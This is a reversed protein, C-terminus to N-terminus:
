DTKTDLQGFVARCKRDENGRKLWERMVGVEMRVNEYVGSGINPKLFGDKSHNEIFKV